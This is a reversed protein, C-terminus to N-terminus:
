VFWAHKHGFLLALKESAIKRARLSKRKQRLEIVEWHKCCSLELVFPFLQKARFFESTSFRSLGTVALRALKRHCTKVSTVLKIQEDTRAVKVIKEVVLASALM